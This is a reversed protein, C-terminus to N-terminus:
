SFCALQQLCIIDAAFYRGSVGVGAYTCWECTGAVCDPSAARGFNSHRRLQLTYQAYQAAADVAICAAVHTVTDVTM